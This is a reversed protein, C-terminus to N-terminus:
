AVRGRGPWWSSHALLGAVPNCPHAATVGGDTCKEPGYVVSAVAIAGLAFTM